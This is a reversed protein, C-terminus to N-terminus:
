GMALLAQTQAADHHHLHPVEAPPCPTGLGFGQAYRCGAAELWARQQDSTLGEAVVDLQLGHGLALVARAIAEDGTDNGLGQVFTSDIKLAHVPLAKLHRLSAYETGFDDLAIRVGLVHLEELVQRTVRVDHMAASETIEITVREPAVGSSRLCMAVYQVLGRDHLSRMSLNVALHRPAAPGWARMQEIAQRLVWRDLARILGREEAVPIFDGPGLLGREPHHWRVLAEVGVVEQTALDVIPQYHLTLGDSEIAQRLEADLVFLEPSLADLQPEYRHFHGGDRKARYMAVDAHKLLDEITAGDGPACAIGISTTVYVPGGRLLFPQAFQDLIRQALAAAQAADAQPLLVAFEDGGLRALVDGERVSSRLREAVQTLLDDGVAHGMTDNVLKFCDLDLYLLSLMRESQTAERLRREASSQFSRRNALGTLPDNFALQEVQAERARRVTVDRTVTVIEHVDGSGPSRVAHATAELWRESGDAHRARYTLTTTGQRDSLSRYAAELAPQDAPLAHHWLPLGVLAEAPMGLVAQSAPSCYHTVGEATHCAIIDTAHEAILRYRTESAQLASQMTHHELVQAVLRAVIALLPQNEHKWSPRIRAASLFLCGVVAKDITVPAVLVARVGHAAFLAQEAQAEPPLGRLCSAAVGVGGLVQETWWPLAGAPVRGTPFGRMDTREISWTNTVQWAREAPLYQLLQASDAGLFDAVQALATDIAHDADSTRQEALRIAAQSTSILRSSVIWVVLLLTASGIVYVAPLAAGMSTHPALTDRPAGSALVAGLVVCLVSIGFTLRRSQGFSVMLVVVSLLPVSVLTTEPLLLSSLAVGAILAAVLPLMAHGLPRRDLLLLTAVSGVFALVLVGLYSTIVARNDFLPLAALMLLSTLSCGFTLVQAIGRILRRRSELLFTEASATM